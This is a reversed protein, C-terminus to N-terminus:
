PNTALKLIHTAQNESLGSITRFTEAFRSILQHRLERGEPTLVASIVRQDAELKKKELWNNAVCSQVLPTLNSPKISLAESISKMTMPAGLITILQIQNITLDDCHEAVEALVHNTLKKFHALLAISSPFDDEYVM